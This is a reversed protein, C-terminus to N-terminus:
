GGVIRMMAAMNAAKIAEVDLVGPTLDSEFAIEFEGRDIRIDIYSKVNISRENNIILDAGIKGPGLGEINTTQTGMFLDAEEPKLTVSQTTMDGFGM